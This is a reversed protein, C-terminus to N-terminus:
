SYLAAEAEAEDEYNEEDNRELKIMMATGALNTDPWTGSTAPEYGTGAEVRV